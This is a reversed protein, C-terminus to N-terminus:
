RKERGKFLNSINSKFGIFVPFIYTKREQLEKFNYLHSAEAFLAFQGLVYEAGIGATLSLTYEDQNSLIIQQSQVDVESRPELVLAAGPGAFGSINLKGISRRFGLPLTFSTIATRGGLAITYPYGPYAVQQTYEFVLFNVSPYLFFGKEGLSVDVGIKTSVKPSLVEKTNGGTIGLGIGSITYVTGRKAIDEKTQAKINDTIILTLSISLILTFLFKM